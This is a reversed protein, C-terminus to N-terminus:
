GSERSGQGLLSSFEDDPEKLYEFLRYASKDVSKSHQRMEHTINTKELAKTARNWM